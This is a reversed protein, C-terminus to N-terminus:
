LSHRNDSSLILIIFPLIDLVEDEVSGAQFSVEFSSKLLELLDESIVALVFKDLEVVVFDTFTM